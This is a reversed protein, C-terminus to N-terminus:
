AALALLSERRYLSTATARVDNVYKEAPDCGPIRDVAAQPIQPTWPPPPQRAAINRGTRLVPKCRGAPRAALPCPGGRRDRPWRVRAAGGTERGASVGSIERGNRHIQIAPEEETGICPSHVVYPLVGM